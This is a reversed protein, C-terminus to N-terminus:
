INVFPIGGELNIFLYAKGVTFRSPARKRGNRNRFIRAAHGVKREGGFIIWIIILGLLILETGDGKTLAKGKSVTSFFRKGGTQRFVCQSGVL